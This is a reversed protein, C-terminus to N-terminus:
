GKSGRGVKKPKYLALEVEKAFHSSPTNAPRLIRSSKLISEDFLRLEGARLGSVTQVVPVELLEGSDYTFLSRDGFLFGELRTADIGRKEGNAGYVVHGGAAGDGRDFTVDYGSGRPQLAVFRITADHTPIGLRSSHRTNGAQDSSLVFVGRRGQCEVYTRVQVVSFNSGPLPPLYIRRSRVRSIIMSLYSSGEFTDIELASPVLPRLQSLPTIWHVFLVDAWRQFYRPSGRRSVARTTDTLPLLM